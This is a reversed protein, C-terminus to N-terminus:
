LNEKSVHDVIYLEDRLRVTKISQAALMAALATAPYGTRQGYQPITLYQVESTSKPPSAEIAAVDWGHRQALERYGTKLKPM